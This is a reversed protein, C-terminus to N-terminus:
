PKRFVNHKTSTIIIVVVMSVISSLRIVVLTRSNMLHILFALRESVMSSM